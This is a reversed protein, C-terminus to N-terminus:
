KEAEGIMKYVAEVMTNDHFSSKTLYYDAGCEAGRIKDEERDKYSVIMVPLHKLRSNGKIKEVLEFGNMRPMDIDTIVMDFEATRVANWGDMGNVATEVEYGHSELIQRELERVTISDDIVLLRKRKVPAADGTAGGVRHLNDSKIQNDIARVLDDIDIILIPSGDDLISASNVCFVKGLREDLPRVVIKEERVFRDVALAYRNYRDSVLLLPIEGADPNHGPCGMIEGAPVVGINVGDERIYQHNEMTMIESASVHRLRDIRTTPFAYFEGGVEVILAPIVSLSVPMQLRFMTYEGKRTEIDIQGKVEQIMSMVVDLGIGRGSIESVESRTSFGPLFLFDFLEREPMDMLMEVTALGKEAISNRLAEVDIGRGDDTITINFMGAWHFAAMKITGTAPKGAALRQEPLELGHDVANRLLHTLPAELKEMIDRDLGTEGGVIELEVKKGLTQGLDRIMRPFIKALDQFPMIKCSVVENYFDESFSESKRAFDSFDRIFVALERQQDDHHSKLADYWERTEWETAEQGHRAERLKDVIEAVEGSLKKMALLERELFQLKKVNVFSEGALELMHKMKSDAVKVIHEQATGKRPKDLGVNEEAVIEKKVVPAVTKGAILDRYAQALSAFSASQEAVFQPFEGEPTRSIKKILDVGALLQDIHGPAVTITGNILSSFYDEMAHAFKVVEDSRVIRAGGKLSHAARMLAELDSKDVPPKEIRLLGDGLAQAQTEAEMLFLGLMSFNQLDKGSM